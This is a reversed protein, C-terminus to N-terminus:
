GRIRMVRVILVSGDERRCAESASCDMLLKYARNIETFEETSEVEPSACPQGKKRARKEGTEICHGIVDPHCMRARQRYAKEIEDKCVPYDRLGLMKRAKDLEGSCVKKIEATYFSYTPLPGICRFNIRGHYAEDLRNLVYDFRKIKRHEVLFAANLIMGDDMLDHTRQALAIESLASTIGSATKRNRKEMAKRVLRGANMQDEMNVGGPKSLLKKKYERVEESEEATQRIISDKDSWTAAVNIEVKGEIERFTEKFDRYGFSLVDIVEAHSSVYTGLKLPIVPHSVMAKELVQQHRLLYRAGAEKTMAAFDVMASDMVVASIDRYPVTYVAEPLPLKAEPAEIVGFAYKGEM